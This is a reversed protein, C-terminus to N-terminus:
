WDFEFFHRYNIIIWLGFGQCYIGLWLRFILIDELIEIGVVHFILGLCGFVVGMVGRLGILFRRNQYLVVECLCSDALLYCPKIEFGYCCNAYCCDWGWYYKWNGFNEFYKMFNECYKMFYECNKSSNKSLNGFNKM